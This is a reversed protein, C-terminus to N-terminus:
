LYTHYAHAHTVDRSWFSCLSCLLWPLLPVSQCHHVLSSDESRHVLSSSEAKCHLNLKVLHLTHQVNFIKSQLPQEISFVDICHPFNSCQIVYHQAKCYFRHYNLNLETYVCGSGAIRQLVVYYSTYSDHLSVLLQLLLWHLVFGLVSGEWGLGHESDYPVLCWKSVRVKLMM